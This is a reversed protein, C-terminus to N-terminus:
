SKETSFSGWARKEKEEACPIVMTITTGAGEASEVRIEGKMQEVAWKVMAMGLGSEDGASHFPRFMDEKQSPTMGRGTDSIVVQAPAMRADETRKEKVAPSIVIRGGGELSAMSQVIINFLAQRVLTVDVFIVIPRGTKVMILDIQKQRAQGSLLDVVSQVIENLDCEIMRQKKSRALLLSRDIIGSMRNVERVVIQYLDTLTGGSALEKRTKEATQRMTELPGKLEAALNNGWVGAVALRDATRLDNEIDLFRETQRILAERSQISDGYNETSAPRSERIRQVLFGTLCGVILFIAAELGQPFGLSISGTRAPGQLLFM